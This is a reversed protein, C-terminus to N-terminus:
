TRLMADIMKFIGKVEELPKEVERLENLALAAHDPCTGPLETQPDLARQINPLTSEINRSLKLSWIALEEWLQELSHREM